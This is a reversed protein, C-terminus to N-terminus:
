TGSGCGATASTRMQPTHRVPLQRALHLLQGAESVPGLSLVVDGRDDGDPCGVLANSVCDLLVTGHTNTHRVQFMSNCATFDMACVCTAAGRRTSSGAGIDLDAEVREESCNCIAESTVTTGEM